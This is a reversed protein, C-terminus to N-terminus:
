FSREQGSPRIAVGSDRGSRAIENLMTSVEIFRDHNIYGTAPINSIDIIQINRATALAQVTPDDIDLNRVRGASGALQNKSRWHTTSATSLTVAPM